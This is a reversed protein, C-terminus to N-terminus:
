FIETLPYEYTIVKLKGEERVTIKTTREVEVGEIEVQIEFLEKEEVKELYDKEIKYLKYILKNPNQATEKERLIEQEETQVVGILVHGNSYFFYKIDATEEIIRYLSGDTVFLVKHGFVYITSKPLYLGKSKVSIIKRSDVEEFAPKFIEEEEVKEEIDVKKDAKELLYVFESTKSPINLIRMANENKIIINGYQTVKFETEKKKEALFRERIVSHDTGVYTNGLSNCDTLLIKGKKCQSIVLDGCLSTTRVVSSSHWAVKQVIKSNRNIIILLGDETGVVFYNDVVGLTSSSIRPLELIKENSNEKYLFLGNNKVYFIEDNKWSVLESQDIEIDVPSFQSVIGENPTNENLETKEDKRNIRRKKQVIKIRKQETGETQETETYYVYVYEDSIHLKHNEGIEEIEAVLEFPSEEKKDGTKNEKYIYVKSDVTMILRNETSQHIKGLKEFTRLLKRTEMSYEEIEGEREVFFKENEIEVSSAGGSLLM